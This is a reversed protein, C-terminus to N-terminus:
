SASANTIGRKALEAVYDASLQNARVLAPIMQERTLNQLQNNIEKLEAIDARYGEILADKVALERQHAVMLDDLTYKPVVWRKSVLMVVLIGIIGFNLFPLFADITPAGTTVAEAAWTWHEV